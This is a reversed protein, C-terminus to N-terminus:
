KKLNGHEVETPLTSDSVAEAASHSSHDRGAELDPGLSVIKGFSKQPVNDLLVCTLSPYHQHYVAMAIFLGLLGGVTVDQWHHWYDSVRSICMVATVLMPFLVVVLRWLGGNGNFVHLRGALYLALYSMGASTWSAHGSPFSKRGEKIVRASGTCWVNGDPKFREETGPPFCRWYFDPRLRGVYLKVIDTIVATLLVSAFLGLVAHHLDTSDKHGFRVLLFIVLVPILIAFIPVVLTPITNDKLPYRLEDVAEKSVYREFPPALQLLAVVIMLLFVLIWDGGNSRAHGFFGPNVDVERSDPDAM